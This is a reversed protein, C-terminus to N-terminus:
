RGLWRIRAIRGEPGAAWGIGEPGFSVAWWSRPDLTQWSGGHDASGDMGGPGVAVAVGERGPVLSSGYVAGEIELADSGSWSRGGNTTVAVRGTPAGPPLSSVNIEGIAGGLAIGFGRDGVHATTLGAGPGGLVPVDVVRWSAGYDSTTLLRTRAGNGMAVWARGGPSVTLCTGSAAFGGEGALAAPLVEAAIREWTGGGDSTALLYPVGDVADGYLLGREPTWFDMCDYFADPHEATHQLTWSAGGDDTRYIRSQAGPGASMLYATEASFAAVDRFQLDAVGPVTAARWTAGGDITRVYTGGHGSMWVISGDVPSVAQLLADTGSDRPTIEWQDAHTAQATLSPSAACLWATTFAIANKM